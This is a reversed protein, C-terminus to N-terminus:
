RKRSRTSWSSSRKWSKITSQFQKSRQCLSTQQRTMNCMPRHVRSWPLSRDHSSQHVHHHHLRLLHQNVLRLRRRLLPALRQMMPLMKPHYPRSPFNPPYPTQLLSRLRLFFYLIAHHSLRLSPLRSLPPHALCSLLPCTSHPRGVVCLVQSQCLSSHLWLLSTLSRSNLNSTGM